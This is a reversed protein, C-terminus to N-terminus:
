VAQGSRAREAYQDMLRDIVITRKPALWKQMSVKQPKSLWDKRVKNQLTYLQM